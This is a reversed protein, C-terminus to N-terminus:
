LEMYILYELLIISCLDWDWCPNTMSHLCAASLVHSFPVKAAQHTQQPVKISVPNHHKIM